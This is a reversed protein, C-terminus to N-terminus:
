RSKQRTDSLRIKVNKYTELLSSYCAVYHKFYNILVELEAVYPDTPILPNPLIPLTPMLEHVSEEVKPKKEITPNLFLTGPRKHSNSSAIAPASDSYLLTSAPNSLQAASPSETVPISTSYDYSTHDIDSSLPQALQFVLTDDNSTQQLIDHQISQQQHTKMHSSLNTAFTYCRGCVTCGHKKNRHTSGRHRSLSSRQAFTEGCDLCTYRRGKNKSLCM